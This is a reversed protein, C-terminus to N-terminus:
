RTSINKNTKQTCFRTLHGLQKYTWCLFRKGEVVVMITQDEYQITRPIAQFGERVLCMTLFYDGHTTGSKSKVINVDEVSGYRSLYAILVDGNLQLPVNYVTVKIRRKGKYEPQLRFFRSSVNSGALKEALEKSPLLFDWTAFSRCCFDRGPIAAIKTTRRVNRKKIGALRRTRLDTVIYSLTKPEVVEVLEPTPLIKNKEFYKAYKGIRDKEYDEPSKPTTSLRSTNRANKQAPQISSAPLSSQESAITSVPTSPLSPWKEEPKKSPSPGLGVFLDTQTNSNPEEM